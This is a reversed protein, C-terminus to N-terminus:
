VSMLRNYQKVECDFKKDLATLSVTEKPLEDFVIDNYLVSEVSTSASSIRDRYPQLTYTSRHPLADYPIAYISSAFGISSPFSPTPSPPKVVKSNRRGNKYCVLIDWRRTIFTAILIGCPVLMIILVPILYLMNSKEESTATTMSINFFTPTNSM